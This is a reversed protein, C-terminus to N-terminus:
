YTFVENNQESETIYDAHYHHHASNKKKELKGNVLEKGMRVVVFIEIINFIWIVIARMSAAIMIIPPLLALRDITEIENTVENM